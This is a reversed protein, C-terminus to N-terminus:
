FNGPAANQQERAVMEHHWQWLQIEDDTAPRVTHIEIPVERGLNARLDAYLEQLAVSGLERAQTDDSADVLVYRALTGVFWARRNTAQRVAEALAEWELRTLMQDERASLVAEAAMLVRELADIRTMTPQEQNQDLFYGNVQKSASCVDFEYENMWADVQALAAELTVLVHCDYGNGDDDLVCLLNDIIEIWYM